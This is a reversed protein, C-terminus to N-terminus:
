SLTAAAPPVPLSFIYIFFTGTNGLIRLAFNAMEDCRGVLGCLKIRKERFEEENNYIGHKEHCFINGPNVASPEVIAWLNEM